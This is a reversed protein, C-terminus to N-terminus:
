KTSAANNCLRYDLLSVQKVINLKVWVVDIDSSEDFYWLFKIENYNKQKAGKLM